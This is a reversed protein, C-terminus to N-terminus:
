SNILDRAARVLQLPWTVGKIISPGMRQGLSLTEDSRLYFLGSAMFAVLIYCGMVFDAM